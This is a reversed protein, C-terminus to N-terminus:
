DPVVQQDTSAPTTTRGQAAGSWALAAAVSGVLLAVALVLAAVLGARRPDGPHRARAPAPQRVAPGRAVRAPRRAGRPLRRRRYRREGATPGARRAAV